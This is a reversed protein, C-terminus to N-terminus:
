NSKRPFLHFFPPSFYRQQNTQKPNLLGWHNLSSRDLSPHSRSISEQHASFGTMEMHIGGAEREYYLTQNETSCGLSLCPTLDFTCAFWTSTLAALPTSKNFKHPCLYVGLLLTKNGPISFLNRRRLSGGFPIPRQSLIKLRYPLLPM